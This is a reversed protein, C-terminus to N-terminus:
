LCCSCCRDWYAVRLSVVRLSVSWFDSLIADIPLSQFLGSLYSKLLQLFNVDLNFDARKEILKHHPVSRTSAKKIDTYIIFSSM